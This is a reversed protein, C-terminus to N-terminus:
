RGYARCSDDQGTDLAIVTLHDLSRVGKIMLTHQTDKGKFAYDAGSTRPDGTVPNDDKDDAEFNINAPTVAVRATVAVGTGTVRYSVTTCTGAANDGHPASTPLPGSGSGAMGNAPASAAAAGRHPSGSGCGAVGLGALAVLILVHNRV